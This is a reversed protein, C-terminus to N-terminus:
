ILNQERAMAELRMAEAVLDNQQQEKAKQIEEPTPDGPLPLFSYLNQDEKKLYPAVSYYAVIRAQRWEENIIELRQQRYAKIFFFVEELTCDYYEAPKL